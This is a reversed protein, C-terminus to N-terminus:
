LNVTPSRSGIPDSLGQSSFGNNDINVLYAARSFSVAKQGRDWASVLSGSHMMALQLAISLLIVMILQRMTVGSTGQPSEQQTITSPEVRKQKHQQTWVKISKSATVITSFEPHYHTQM